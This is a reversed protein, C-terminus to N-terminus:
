VGRCRQLLSLVDDPHEACIWEYMGKIQKCRWEVDDEDYFTLTVDELSVLHWSEM